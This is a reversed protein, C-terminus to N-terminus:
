FDYKMDVSGDNKMKGGVLGIDIGLGAILHLNAVQQCTSMISTIVQFVVLLLIAFIGLDNSASSAGSLGVGVFLVLIFGVASTAILYIIGIGLQNLFLKFIQGGNNMVTKINTGFEFLAGSRDEAAYRLMGIQIAYGLIITLPVFVLLAGCMLLPIMGANDGFDPTYGPNDIGAVIEAFVDGTMPAIVMAVIIVMILFLPILYILSALFNWLGRKISEGIEFDPLRDEGRLVNQMIFIGYGSIFLGFLLNGLGSVISGAAGFIFQIALILGFVLGIQLIKNLNNNAFPFNLAEKFSM